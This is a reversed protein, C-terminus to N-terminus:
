DTRGVRENVAKTHFWAELMARAIPGAETGGHGGQERFVCIAIQPNEVPAFCVFWAHPMRRPPDEASGTKGAVTVGQMNVVHGTGGKGIVTERMAKKIQAIDSQSIPITSLLEPAIRRIVKGHPDRIERLIHPRMIRGDNAIAAAVMAMQLPTAQVFGQGISCNVTDGPYWSEHYLNKKWQETPITGARESPLDIGTKKGLGFAFAMDALKSIGLKRGAVYFFVDCSQSIATYFDVGGHVKWCRKRYRGIRYSGSCHVASQTTIAGNKLGASATVIKFTSGPPYKSGVARNQLPHFKNTAIKGWETGINNSDFDPKSLLALVEGTRPSLAVVAGVKQGIAKEAAAQLNTDLSLVMTKGSISKQDGLLRTRVGHANVEISKGGDTGHLMDDYRKELGSKGIFDGPRYTKPRADLEDKDIERLYGLVHCFLNGNPYYRAQDLEVSVGPMLLKQEEVQVVINFDANDAVRVPAGKITQKREITARLDKEPIQLIGSLRRIGDPSGQIREPIVSVVFRPRSTAITRGKRDLIVGRPARVRILRRRNVESQRLFEDGQAIQLQWLRGLLIVFALWIVAAIRRARSRELIREFPNISM